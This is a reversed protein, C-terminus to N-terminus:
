ATDGEAEAGRWERVRALHEYAGARPAIEPRPVAVYATAPDDFHALLRLLGGRTQERLEATLEIPQEAGPPEGGRLSLHVLERVTAAPVGAFGGAEAILAEVPLQPELGSLVDQRRPLGGSKYDLIAVSGDRGVEIRDARARIRVPGAPASLGLEGELEALIRVAEARRARDFAVIWGAVTEFRPWWLAGIQPRHDETEFLRRGLRLLLAVPEEGPAEALAEVFRQLARHLLQGREAAGPDADLPELPLLGLIRRAYVAYPDRVLDRLDSVWLERPRLRLPPRPAPRAIPRPWGTGPPEDLLRPWRRRAPPPAIRGDLGRGALVAQLRVLWRSATTPQGAEDKRAHSLVVTPASALQVLDHAAIGLAQEVAPLGLTRRMARNLWPGAELAPPWAGEVLGGLLVLDASALRGELRGLIALRPHGPARRRVSRSAMTQALLAPWASVPVPGLAPLAERLEALFSALAVGAERAWLESPDGTEDAALAEAFGLQADLLAIPDASGHAVLELAPGAAALLPDLWAVLEAPPVPAPWRRDDRRRLLEARLGPLGGALRPGRLLGRELARVHRRFDGGARGGRALPHKLAALLAVPPAEAVLLHATLLLFSGPPTQDLPTGASDDVAIHWRALEAAVRRALNRDATVLVARRGPTELAERLRLALELAEQALDEAEVLELGALAAEPLDAPGSAAAPESRSPATVARWLPARDIAGPAPWAAVADRPVGIRELLAKLGHQPHSPGLARWDAEALGLDLGPLVVLGDALRAVVALLRAVAPITGVIGAAVVPGPPAARSWRGALADLLRARRRAPELVGEAALLGPWAERLVALFKLTEQWHTALTEPVLRDLADLEVEETQLEDLLALLEQALRVAQEHRLGPERALVLRALLLWRRLPPLPPPLELEAQPDIRLEVEDPEGVPLLRPLLLTRGGGVRLFAERAALCARRGPLLLLTDALRDPGAELLRGALTDLFPAGAPITAIVGM